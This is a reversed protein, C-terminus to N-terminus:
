GQWWPCPGKGIHQTWPKGCAACPKSGVPTDNLANVAREGRILPMVTMTWLGFILRPIMRIGKTRGPAKSLDM